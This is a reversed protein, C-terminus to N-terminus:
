VVNAMNNLNDHHQPAIHWQMEDVIKTHAQAPNSYIWGGYTCSKQNQKVQIQYM